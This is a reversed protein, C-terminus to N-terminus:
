LWEYKICAQTGRGKTIAMPFKCNFLVKRDTVQVSQLNNVQRLEEIERFFLDRRIRRDWCLRHNGTSRWRGQSSPGMSPGAEWNSLLNSQRYLCNMPHYIRPMQPSVAMQVVAAIASTAKCVENWVCFKILFQVLSAWGIHAVWAGISSFTWPLIFFNSVAMWHTPSWNISKYFCTNNFRWQFELCNEM